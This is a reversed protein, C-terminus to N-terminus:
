QKRIGDFVYSNDKEKFVYVYTPVKNYNVNEINNAIIPDTETVGGHYNFVMNGTVDTSYNLYMAKEFVYM